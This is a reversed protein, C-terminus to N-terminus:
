NPTAAYYGEAEFRDIDLENREFIESLQEVFCGAVIGSAMIMDDGDTGFIGKRTDPLRVLYSGDPYYLLAGNDPYSYRGPRMASVKPSVPKDNFQMGRTPQTREQQCFDDVDAKGVGQREAPPASEPTSQNATQGAGEHSLAFVAAAANTIRTDPGSIIAIVGWDERTWTTVLQAREARKLVICPPAVGEGSVQGLKLMATGVGVQCERSADNDLELSADDAIFGRALRIALDQEDVGEIPKIIYYTLQQGRARGNYECLIDSTAESVVKSSDYQFYALTAPCQLGSQVHQVGGGELNVIASQAGQASAQGLPLLGTSVALVCSTLLKYSFNM